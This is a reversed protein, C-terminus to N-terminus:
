ILRRRARRAVFVYVLLGILALGAVVAVTGSIRVLWEIADALPRLATVVVPKGRQAATVSPDDTGCGAAALVLSAALVLVIRM